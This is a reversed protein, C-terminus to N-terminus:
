QLIETCNTGGKPDFRIQGSEDSCFTRNGSKGQSIPTATILYSNFQDVNNVTNKQCNSITFNYGAKSGSALDDPILQAAEATPTGS